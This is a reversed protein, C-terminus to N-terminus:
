EQEVDGEDTFYLSNPDDLSNLEQMSTRTGRNLESLSAETSDAPAEKRLTQKYEPILVTDTRYHEPM